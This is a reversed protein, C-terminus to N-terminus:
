KVSFFRAWWPQNTTVDGTEANVEGSVPVTVPIFGLIRIIRQGQVKFFLKGSDSALKIEGLRSEVGAERALEAAWGPLVKIVKTTGDANVVSVEGTTKDINLPFVTKIMEGDSIVLLGGDSTQQIEVGLGKGKGPLKIRLLGGSSAEKLTSRLKSSGSADKLEVQVERGAPRLTVHKVENNHEVENEVNQHDGSNNQGEQDPPNRSASSTSNHVNTELKKFPPAPVVSPNRNDDGGIHDAVSSNQSRGPSDSNSSQHSQSDLGKGSDGFDDGGKAIMIGQVDSRNESLQQMTQLNSFVMLGMVGVVAVILLLHAFGAQQLPIQFILNKIQFKKIPMLEM